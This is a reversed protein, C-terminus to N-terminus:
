SESRKKQSALRVSAVERFVNFGLCVEGGELFGCLFQLFMQRFFLRIGLPMRSGTNACYFFKLSSCLQPSKSSFADLFLQTIFADIIIISLGQRGNHIDGPGGANSTRARPDRSLTNLKRGEREGCHRGLAVRCKISHENM